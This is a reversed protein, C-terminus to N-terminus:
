GREDQSHIRRTFVEGAIPVNSDVVHFFDATAVQSSTPPIAHTSSPKAEQFLSIYNKSSKEL